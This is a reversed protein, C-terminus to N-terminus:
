QLTVLVKILGTGSDLPELAKGLVTGVRPDDERMAHGPTASTVLLDGPSIPGNEASVNCPVIGVVAMPIENFETAIELLTYGGGEEGAGAPKDWERESGIFGPKTSYIGAVLTSRPESAKRISRMEAHDIVMVDGPEVGVAGSSVAVMEALDAGGPMFTGDAKVDGNGNVRFKFDTSIGAIECEIFQFDDPSGSPAKLQLVDHSAGPAAIMEINATQIATGYEVDQVDLVRNNAMGEDSIKV